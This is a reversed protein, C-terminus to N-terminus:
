PKSKRPLLGAKPNSKPETNTPPPSTEDPNTEAKAIYGGYRRMVSKGVPVEGFIKHTEVAVFLVVDSYQIVLLLDDDTLHLHMVGRRELLKDKSGFRDLRYYRNPIPMGKEIYEVLAAVERAIEIPM